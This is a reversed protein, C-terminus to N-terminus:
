SISAAEASMTLRIDVFLSRSSGDVTCDLTGSFVRLKFLDRHDRGFQV